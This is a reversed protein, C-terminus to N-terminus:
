FVVLGCCSEGMCVLVGVSIRCGASGIWQLSISAVPKLLRVPFPKTAILPEDIPLAFFQSAGLIGAPFM